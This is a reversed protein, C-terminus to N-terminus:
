DEEKEGILHQIYKSCLEENKSAKIKSDIEFFNKDEDDLEGTNIFANYARKADEDEVYFKHKTQDNENLVFRVKDIDNYFYEELLPIIKYVLANKIDISSDANMLYSHGIQNDKNLLCRLRANINKLVILADESKFPVDYNPLLEEFRFRRRIASDLLQISRDATNMTGIIKVNAPVGFIQKSYPLSVTMEDDGGLRKTEEILSILEGFISAVNGRNIEDICFLVFKGEAIAKDMKERRSAIDDSICEDLNTYGALKAAKECANKFHGPEITYKIDGSSEKDLVPKLGEVFEEYSFSQHFTVAFFCSDDDLLAQYEQMKYTKGTGPPGYLITNDLTGLNLSNFPTPLGMAFMGEDNQPTQDADAAKVIEIDFDEELKPALTSDSSYMLGSAYLEGNSEIFILINEYSAKGRGFSKRITVFTSKVLKERNEKTGTKDILFALCLLTHKTAQVGQSLRVELNGPRTGSGTAYVDADSLGYKDVFLAKIDNFKSTSTNSIGGKFKSLMEQYLENIKTLM